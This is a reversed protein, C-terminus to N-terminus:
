KHKNLIKNNLMHFPRETNQAVHCPCIMVILITKSIDVLYYKAVYVAPAEMDVVQGVVLAVGLEALAVAAVEMVVDVVVGALFEEVLDEGVEVVVVLMHEVGEMDVVEVEMAVAAMALAVVVVEMDMAAVGEELDVTVVEMVPVEVGLAVVGVEM